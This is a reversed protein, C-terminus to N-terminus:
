LFYAKRTDAAPATDPKTLESIGRRKTDFQQWFGYASQVENVLYAYEEQTMSDKIAKNHPGSEFLIKGFSINIPYVNMAVPPAGMSYTEQEYEVAEVLLDLQQLIATVAPNLIEEVTAGGEQAETIHKDGQYSALSRNFIWNRCTCRYTGDTKKTVRYMPPNRKDTGHGTVKFFRWSM